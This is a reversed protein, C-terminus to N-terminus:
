EGSPPPAAGEQLEAEEIASIASGAVELRTGIAIMRDSCMTRYNEFDNQAFIPYRAPMATDVDDGSVAEYRGVFYTMGSILGSMDEATANDGLSGLVVSVFMACDLDDEPTYVPASEEVPAEQAVIPLAALSLSLPAIMAFRLM